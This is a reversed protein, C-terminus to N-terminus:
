FRVGASALLYHNPVSPDPDARRHYWRAEFVPGLGDRASVGIGGSFAPAHTWEVRSPAQSFGFTRVVVLDAVGVVLYVPARPGFAAVQTVAGMLFHTDRLSEPSPGTFTAWSLGTHGLQEWWGGELGPRFKVGDHVVHGVLGLRYTPDVFESSNTAVGGAVRLSPSWSGAHSSRVPITALMAALAVVRLQAALGPSM